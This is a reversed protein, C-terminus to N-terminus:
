SFKPSIYIRPVPIEFLHFESLSKSFIDDALRQQEEAAADEEWISTETM